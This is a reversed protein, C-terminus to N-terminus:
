RGDSSEANQDHAHIYRVYYSGGSNVSAIAYVYLDGFASDVGATGTGVSDECRVTVPGVDGSGREQRGFVLFCGHEDPEGSDSAAAATCVCSTIYVPKRCPEVCVLPVETHIMCEAPFGYRVDDSITPFLMGTKKM